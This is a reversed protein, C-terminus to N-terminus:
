IDTGTEDSASVVPARKRTWEGPPYMECTRVQHNVAKVIADSVTEDAKVLEVLRALKVADSMPSERFHRHPRSCSLTGAYLRGLRSVLGVLKPVECHKTRAARM